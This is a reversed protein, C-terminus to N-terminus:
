KSYGEKFSFTCISFLYIFTPIWNASLSNNTSAILIFSSLTILVDFKKFGHYLSRVAYIYAIVIIALAILGISLMYDIWFNETTLIGSSSMIVGIESSSMGFLFTSLDFYNFIEWTNLRVQASSDDFLGMEALRGGLNFNMIVFILGVAGIIIGFLAINRKAFSLKKNFFYQYLVYAGLIMAAGVISGRTNFCLIAVYGLLWLIIKNKAKMKTSCLIFAMMTCVPLANQLPHGLLGFSRFSSIDESADMLLISSNTSDTMWPFINYLTIREFIALGCEFVYFAILLNNAKKWFLANKLTPFSGFILPASMLMLAVWASNSKTDTRMKIVGVLITVIILITIKKNKRAFCNKHTVILLSALAVYVAYAYNCNIGLLNMVNQAFFLIFFLFILYIKSNM